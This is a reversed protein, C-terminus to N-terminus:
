AFSCFSADLHQFFLLSFQSRLKLASTKRKQERMNTVKVKSGGNCNNLFQLSQGTGQQMPNSSSAAAALLWLLLHASSLQMM